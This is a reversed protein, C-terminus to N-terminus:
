KTATETSKPPLQVKQFIYQSTAEDFSKPPGQTMAYDALTLTGNEIKFIAGVIKGISDAQSPPCDKITAHLQKPVVGDPVTITTRFWFNTDRHFHLSDGTVTITIKGQSEHGVAVGEWRGQLLQLAADVAVNASCKVSGSPEGAHSIFIGVFCLGIFIRQVLDMAAPTLHSRESKM